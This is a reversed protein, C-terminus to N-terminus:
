ARKRFEHLRFTSTPLENFHLLYDEESGSILPNHSYEAPAETASILEFGANERPAGDEREIAGLTTLFGKLGDRESDPCVHFFTGGPRLLSLIAHLLPSTETAQYVLDAALVVDVPPAADEWTSEDGWDLTVARVQRPPPLPHHLKRHAGRFFLGDAM